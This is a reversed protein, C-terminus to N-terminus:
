HKQYFKSTKGNFGEILQEQKDESFRKWNNENIKGNTVTGVSLENLKISM